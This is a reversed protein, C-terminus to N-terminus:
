IVKQFVTFQLLEFGQVPVILGIVSRVIDLLYYCESYSDVQNKCSVSVESEYRVSFINDPKSEPRSVSIIRMLKCFANSVKTEKIWLHYYAPQLSQSGEIHLYTKRLKDAYQYWYLQASALYSNKFVQALRKIILPANIKPSFLVFAYYKVCFYNKKIFGTAKIKSITCYLSFLIM